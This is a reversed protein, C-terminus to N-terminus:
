KSGMLNRPDIELQKNFPILRTIVSVKITLEGRIRLIIKKNKGFITNRIATLIARNEIIVDLSFNGTSNGKIKVMNTQECAGVVEDNIMIDSQEIKFSFARNDNNKLELTLDCFLYQENHRRLSIKKFEIDPPIFEPDKQPTCSNTIIFL